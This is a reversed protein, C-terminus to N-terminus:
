LEVFIGYKRSRLHLPKSTCVATPKYFNTIREGADRLKTEVFYPIINEFIIFVIANEGYARPSPSLIAIVDCAIHIPAFRGVLSACYCLM